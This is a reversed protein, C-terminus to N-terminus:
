CKVSEVVALIANLKTALSAREADVHRYAETVKDLQERLESMERQFKGPLDGNINHGTNAGHHEWAKRNTFGRDCDNCCYAMRYKQPLKERSM